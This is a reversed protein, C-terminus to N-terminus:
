YADPNQALHAAGYAGAWEGLQAPIVRVRHGAPRWEYEELHREIRDFLAAGANAIGGGIIFAEPDIANTLSAISAALARISSDWIEQAQADGSEAAKVLETTSEYKGGGRQELTCFGIADELSGPTGCIDGPARFDTTIHGLHGARGIHGRLLRGGSAIAGGVGTGLTLLVVDQLGRASGYAMEGILAAHADNIVPVKAPRELFEGWDLKELGHLRAPMYAISRRDRSALGPASVGIPTEAGGFQATLAQAKSRANSAFVPSGSSTFEGDKTDTRDQAVVEGDSARLCIMKIATGGLDIGIAFQSPL